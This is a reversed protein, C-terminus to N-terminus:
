KKSHPGIIIIPEEQYIPHDEPLSKINYKKSLKELIEPTIIQNREKKNM